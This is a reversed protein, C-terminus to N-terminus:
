GDGAPTLMELAPEHCFGAWVELLSPSPHIGDRVYFSEDSVHARSRELLPVFRAGLENSERELIAEYQVLALSLEPPVDYRTGGPALTWDPIGFIMLRSGDLEVLPLVAGLLRDLRAAFAGPSTAQFHDNTGIFLAAFDYPPRLAAEEIALRLDDTTWGAVALLEIEHAVGAADLRKSLRVPWRDAAEVEVGATYSDGLFLLRKPPERGLGCALVGAFVACVACLLAAALRSRWARM